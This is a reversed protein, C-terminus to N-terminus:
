AACPEFRIQKTFSFICCSVAGVERPILDYQANASVMAAMVNAAFRRDTGRREDALQEGVASAGALSMPAIWQQQQHEQTFRQQSAESIIGRFKWDCACKGARAKVGAAVKDLVRVDKAAGHEEVPNSNLLL